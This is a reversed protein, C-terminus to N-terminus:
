TLTVSVLCQVTSADKTVITCDAADVGVQRGHTDLISASWVLRDGVPSTPGAPIYSQGESTVQEVLRLVTVNNHRGNDAFASYAGVLAALAAAAFVFRRM